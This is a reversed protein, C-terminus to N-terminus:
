LNLEREGHELARPPPPPPPPPSPTYAVPEAQVVPPLPREFEVYCFGGVLVDDVRFSLQPRTHRPMVGDPAAALALAIDSPGTLWFLLGRGTLEAVDCVYRPTVLRGLRRRPIHAPDQAVLVCCPGAPWLRSFLNRVTDVAKQRVDYPGVRIAMALFELLEPLEGPPQPANRIYVNGPLTALPVEMVPLASAPMNEVYDAVQKFEQDTM